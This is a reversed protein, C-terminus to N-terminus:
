NHILTFGNIQDNKWGQVMYLECSLWAFNSTVLNGEATLYHKHTKFKLFFFEKLPPLIHCDGFNGGIKSESASSCWIYYVLYTTNLLWQYTYLIKHELIYSFKFMRRYIIFILTCFNTNNHMFLLMNRFYM